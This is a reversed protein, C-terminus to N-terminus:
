LRATAEIDAKAQCQKHVQTGSERNNASSKGPAIPYKSDELLLEIMRQGCREAAKLLTPTGHAQARVNRCCRGKRLCSHRFCWLSRLKPVDRRQPEARCRLLEEACCIHNGM